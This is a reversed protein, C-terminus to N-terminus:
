YIYDFMSTIDLSFIFDFGLEIKNLDFQATIYNQIICNAWINNM